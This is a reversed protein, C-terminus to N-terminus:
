RRFPYLLQAGFGEPFAPDAIGYQDPLVKPPMYCTGFM